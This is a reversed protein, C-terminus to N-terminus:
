EVQLIRELAKRDSVYWCKGPGPSLRPNTPTPPLKKQEQENATRIHPSSHSKSFPFLGSFEVTNSRKTM